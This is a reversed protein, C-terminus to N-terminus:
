AVPWRPTPHNVCGKRQVNRGFYNLTQLFSRRLSHGFRRLDICGLLTQSRFELEILPLCHVRPMELLRSLHAGNARM